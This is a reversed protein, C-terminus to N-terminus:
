EECIGRKIRLVASRRPWKWWPKWASLVATMNACSVLSNLCPGAQEVKETLLLVEKMAALVDKLASM